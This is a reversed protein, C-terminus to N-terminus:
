VWAKAQRLRPSRRRTEKIAVFEAPSFESDEFTDAIEALGREMSTADLEPKKSM